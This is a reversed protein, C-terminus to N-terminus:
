LAVDESFAIVYDAVVGKGGFDHGESRVVDM